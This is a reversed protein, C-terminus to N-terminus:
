NKHFQLFSGGKSKKSVKGSHEGQFESSKPILRKFTGHTYLPKQATQFDDFKNIKIKPWFNVQVTNIPQLTM